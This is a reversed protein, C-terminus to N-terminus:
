EAEQSINTSISVLTTTGSNLDDLVLLLAVRSTDLDAQTFLATLNLGAADFEAVLADVISTASDEVTAFEVQEEESGGPETFFGLLIESDSLNQVNVNTYATTNGERVPGLLTNESDDLLSGDNEFPLGNILRANLVGAEPTVDDTLLTSELVSIEQASITRVETIELDGYFYLSSATGEELTFTEELLTQGGQSDVPARVVVTHRGPELENYTTAEFSDLDGDVEAGDISVSFNDGRFFGNVVRLNTVPDPTPTPTPSTTPSPQPNVNGQQGTPGPQEFSNGCGGLFLAATLFFSTLQIQKKM